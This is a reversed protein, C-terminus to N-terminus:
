DAFTISHEYTFLRTATSTATNTVTNTATHQLTTAANTLSHPPTSVYSYTPQLIQQLKNCHTTCHKNSYKNCHTARTQQLANCQTTALALFHPATSVYSCTRQLTHQLIQQLTNCHTATNTAARQTTNYCTGPFIASHECLFSCTRQLTHCYKNCNIQLTNCYTPANTLFYPATSVYSYTRQMTHQLKIATHQLM